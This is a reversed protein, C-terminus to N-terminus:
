LSREHGGAYKKEGATVRLKLRNQFPPLPCTAFDNLACPPNYSENFDVVAIDGQPLPVGLFRGAGYTEHGSTADAFMVFLETDGPEELVADLRWERGDKSFVLAGPSEMEEEMGLINVIRIRHAPVYREFRAEVVWDTSVPFYDFGRFARRHPNDLDRVRVGLHGAREIVFFRLAGSALVTPTGSSDAALELASVPQGDHTVGGGPAAIFRVRGGSLVFSGAHGALARNDLTLANDAARGFSNEGPKLWFLGTLTLWGSDSTLSAVRAARWAEVRAREAADADAQARQPAGGGADAAGAAASLAVALALAAIRRGTAGIAQM